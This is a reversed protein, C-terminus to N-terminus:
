HPYHPIMATLEDPPWHEVLRVEHLETLAKRLSDVRGDTIRLGAIPPAEVGAVLERAETEVRILAELKEISITCFTNM